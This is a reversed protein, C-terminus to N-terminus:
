IVIPTSVDKNISGCQMGFYKADIGGLRKAIFNFLLTSLIGTICGTVVFSIVIALTTLVGTLFSTPRAFNLNLNFHFIPLFFGVPLTITDSTTFPVMIACLVGFAGYFLTMIWAVTKIKIEIIRISSNM